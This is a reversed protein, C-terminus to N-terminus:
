AEVEHDEPLALCIKRLRTLAANPRAMAYAYFPGSAPALACSVGHRGEVYFAARLVKSDTREGEM